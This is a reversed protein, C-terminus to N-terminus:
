WKKAGRGHSASVSVGKLKSRNGQPSMVNPMKPANPIKQRHTFHLQKESLFHTSFLKTPAFAASLNDKVIFFRTTIDRQASLPTEASRHRAPQPRRGQDPATGSRGKGACSSPASIPAGVFAVIRMTSSVASLRDSSLLWRFDM